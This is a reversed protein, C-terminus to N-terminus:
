FRPARGRGRGKRLGVYRSPDELNLDNMGSPHVRTGVTPPGEYYKPLLGAFDSKLFAVRVNSPLFFHSPFRYWEKGVCLRQEAGSPIAVTGM